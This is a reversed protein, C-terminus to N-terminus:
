CQECDLCVRPEGPSKKRSAIFLRPGGPRDSLPAQRGLRRPRAGGFSHPRRGRRDRAGALGADAHETDSVPSGDIAMAMPIKATPDFVSWGTWGFGTVTIKKAHTNARVDPRTEQIWQAVAADDRTATQWGSLEALRPRLNERNAAKRPMGGHERDGVNTDLGKTCVRAGGEPRGNGGTRM